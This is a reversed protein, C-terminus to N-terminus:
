VFPASSDTEGATPVVWAPKGDSGITLTAGIDNEGIPPLLGGSNIMAALIAKGTEDLAPSNIPSPSKEVEEGTMQALIEKLTKDLLIPRIM